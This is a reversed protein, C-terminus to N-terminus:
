DLPVLRMQGGDFAAMERYGADRILALAKDFDRAVDDPTHADSGLTVPVGMSAALKVFAPEPYMEDAPWRLGATNM